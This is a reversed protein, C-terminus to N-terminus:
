EDTVFSYWFPFSFPGFTIFFHVFFKFPLDKANHLPLEAPLFVLRIGSHVALKWQESKWLNRCIWGSKEWLIPGISPCSEREGRRGTSAAWNHRLIKQFAFSYFMTRRNHASYSSILMPEDRVAFVLRVGKCWMEENAWHDLGQCSIVILYHNTSFYYYQKTQHTLMKKVGYRLVLM